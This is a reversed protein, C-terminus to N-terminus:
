HPGSDSGSAAPSVAATVPAAEAPDAPTVPRRRPNTFRRWATQQTVGVAPGIRNWSWGAERAAWAAAHLAEDALREARSLGALVAGWDGVQAARGAQQAAGTLQDALGAVSVEAGSTDEHEEGGVWVEV